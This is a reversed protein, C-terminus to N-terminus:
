GVTTANIVCKHRVYRGIMDKDRYVPINPTHTDNYPGFHCNPAGFFEDFSHKLPHYQPRHGLHRNYIFYHVIIHYIVVYLVNHIFTPLCIPMHRYIDTHGDTLM